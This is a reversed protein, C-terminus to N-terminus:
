VRRVPARLVCSRPPRRHCRAPRPWLRAMVLGEYGKVGALEGTRGFATVSVYVLRSNTPALDDYGLGFREVVGPRFTEIVIDAGAALARAVEADDPVDLDLVISRKGRGWFPFAPQSRLPSGGPPEIAIVAAGFDALFGSVTASTLTTSLDLVQLGELPGKM